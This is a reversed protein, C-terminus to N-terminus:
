ASTESYCDSCVMLAHEMCFYVKCKVCNYRTKRNKKSTCFACRGIKNNNSTAASEPGDLKCIENLRLKLTKPLLTNAARRRLHSNILDYSLAELFTRRNVKKNPNNQLYLVYSNIGTENMLSYFIVMPWRNIDRAVNYTECMKDVTDVRGKTANYDMILEPKGTEIEIKVDDHMSSVLLVNKGKKPVHSVLTCNGRHGFLSSKEERGRIETFQKPLERKNKRLTGIVTLKKSELKDEQEHESNDEQKSNYSDEQIEVFDEVESDNEDEYNSDSNEEELMLRIQNEDM